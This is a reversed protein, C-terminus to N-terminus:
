ISIIRDLDKVFQFTHVNEDYLIAVLLNHAAFLIVRCCM